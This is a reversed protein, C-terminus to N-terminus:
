GAKGDRVRPDLVAYLADVFFNAVLVALAIFLFIAQMLPYDLTTVANYLQLGLGPYSFVTETLISGGVVFGLAMGFATFSPLLANRLVYRNLLRGESLGKARAFAVYDEGMVGMVNNRMTILWGGAATVVLTLAPLAAHRVLSKWWEASFQTLFPDLNGSLPFTGTRFALLYLLLLAFWFYPMSNLFLAIPPLADALRGGRRWASYLGLASGLFFALVTCIGVLGITWPAAQAVIDVVPTPFQGISRGFDGRLMNGLYTVYQTFLSGQDNLGYAVTLADVASPDLKGQYKALMAGIPDGPVLRPLVFNLTVAVWLTLLLFLFKRLLYPM